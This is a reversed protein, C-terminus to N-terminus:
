ASPDPAVVPGAGLSWAAAIESPPKRCLAAAAQVCAGAAVHERGAPVTVPSGALDAVVRQYAPSRAGGGVLLLREGGSGTARGSPAGALAAALADLGDLLGCVVGEVAARALAERTAGTRLGSLTGTATPRNPTREGDLYPVLVLGGAGAPAALAAADFADRELGLLRAVTDTVRTANLTCVLPLFRGGADAFGAVAGTADATAREAVTYVTGSTGLSLAVDGPALGLGLAAAMNDGTGAAVLAGPALGLEAAAQPRLRGAADSPGLVAPLAAEWERPEVRELLETAYRGDAPGWYGTGSADGRDTVFAGALRLTLWDHPLAVRALRAFVDPEVRRLWALKTVTFSAVPVSGCTRAWAAAGLSAVLADADSASETDNWLKAPRLVEDDAGLAVLGHQQAAVALADVERVGADALAGALARWWAGPDQESRPPTTPPHPARGEALLAGTEADRLEVKTAQTSSDIGLVRPM